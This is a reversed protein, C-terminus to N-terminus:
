VGLTCPFNSGLSAGNWAGGAGGHRWWHLNMGGMTDAKTQWSMWSIGLGFFRNCIGWSQLVECLSFGVLSPDVLGKASLM